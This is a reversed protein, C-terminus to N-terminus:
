LIHYSIRKHLDYTWIIVLALISAILKKKHYKALFPIKSQIPMSYVLARHNITKNKKPIDKRVTYKLFRQIM